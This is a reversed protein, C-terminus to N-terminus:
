VLALVESLDSHLVQQAALATEAAKPQFAVSKGTARLMCIDNLGDGVSLMNEPAIGLKEVVHHVVNAKCFRHEPCGNDHFMMPSFTILGTAKGRKFRMLNGLAFDAFVRRRVIEAVIQFSDTVIGVCFGAKRLGVVTDVAGDMLPIQCATEEFVGRDVGSFLSGIAQTRAEHTMAANDLYQELERMRDTRVALEQIFRGNLLTGDMDFLAVRQAAGTKALFGEMTAQHHRESEIVEQMYSERLRGCCAARGLITRAVQTAMDELFSLPHSDHKIEGVDVESLRAKARAADILLGIDVGYDNEFRLTQLLSRRAAMIGSLPQDFGTLEPFYTRLLPKATLSTVRGGSRQFRAKVFDAEGTILPLTMREVLDPVLGQLDGDLYLLWENKAARMGDEMSSGKGLMVSTIVRAGAAVALEPTGDISGDDVVIVEDVLVSRNAFAVVSAITEAENLAPIIVSVRGDERRPWETGGVASATFSTGLDVDHLSLMVCM